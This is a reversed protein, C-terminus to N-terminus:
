RELQKRLNDAEMDGPALAALKEAYGRAAAIQGADRSMTALAYLLERDYPHRKHAGALVDIAKNTQGTSNM